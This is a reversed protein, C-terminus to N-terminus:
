SLADGALTFPHDPLKWPKRYPRHYDPLEMADPSNTVKGASADWTLSGGYQASLNALHCAVTVCYASQIDSRCQSRSKVADLFDRIHSQDPHIRAPGPHGEPSSWSFGERDVCLSGYEGTFVVGHGPRDQGCADPSRVEWQLVFDPFQYLCILDETRRQRAPSYAAVSSPHWQQMGLLAIDILHAGWGTTLGGAFNRNWRWNFHVGDGPYPDMRAPGIWFGYDLHPPPSEPASQLTSPHGCVWARCTKVRGAGGSRVFELADQFHGVSRQWTNVQAVPTYRQFAGLMSQAERIDRSLPKECFIDKGAECAYIFPLAHWHDPTSIIVADLDKLDILPRFDHLEAPRRGTIREIDAALAALHGRDVDCLAIVEVDPHALFNLVNCRGMGGAGIAGVLIKENAPARQRRTHAPSTLAEPLLAGLSAGLAAKGGGRLFERRNVRMSM